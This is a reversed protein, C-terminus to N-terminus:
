ERDLQTLVNINYLYQSALDELLWIFIMSGHPFCGLSSFKETFFLICWEYPSLFILPLIPLLISSSSVIQSLTKFNKLSMRHFPPLTPNLWDPSPFPWLHDWWPTCFRIYPHLSFSALSKATTDLSLVLPLSCVSFSLLNWRFILFCKELTLQSLVLLTAM